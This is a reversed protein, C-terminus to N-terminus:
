AYPFVLDLLLNDDFMTIQETQDARVEPPTHHSRESAQPPRQGIIRVAVPLASIRATAGMRRGQCPIM